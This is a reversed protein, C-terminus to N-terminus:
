VPHFSHLSLSSRILVRLAFLFYSQVRFKSLIKDDPAEHMWTLVVAMAATLKTSPLIPIDDCFTSAIFFGNRDNDHHVAVNWSDKGPERYGSSKDEAQAM